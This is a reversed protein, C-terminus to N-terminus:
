TVEKVLAERVKGHAFTARVRNPVGVMCNMEKAMSYTRNIKDLLSNM